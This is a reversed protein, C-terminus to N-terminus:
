LKLYDVWTITKNIKRDFVTERRQLIFIVAEM